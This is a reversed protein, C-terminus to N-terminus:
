RGLWSQPCWHKLKQREMIYHSPQSTFRLPNSAGRKGAGRKHLTPRRAQPLPHRGAVRSASPGTVSPCIFVHRLSLGGPLIGPEVAPSVGVAVPESGKAEVFRTRERLRSKELRHLEPRFYIQSM